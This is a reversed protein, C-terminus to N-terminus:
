EIHDRGHHRRDSTRVHSEGNSSVPSASRQGTPSRSTSDGDRQGLQADTLRLVDMAFSQIFDQAEETMSGHLSRLVLPVLRAKAAVEIPALAPRITLSGMLATARAKFPQGLAFAFTSDEDPDADFGGKFAAFAQALEVCAEVVENSPFSAVDHDDVPPPSSMDTM